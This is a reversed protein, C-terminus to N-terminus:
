LPYIEGNVHNQYIAEFEDIQSDEHVMSNQHQQFESIWEHNLPSQSITHLENGIANLNFPDQVANWEKSQGQFFDNM